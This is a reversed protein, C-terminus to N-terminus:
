RRAQNKRRSGYCGSELLQRYGQLFPKASKQLSFHEVVRARGNAGMRRALERNAHLQALASAFASADGVPTLIGTEGGRVVVAPGGCDTSVVPLGCAMAELLVMGLGEENSSLALCFARKYLSALEVRSIGIRVEVLQALNKARVFAADAATLGSHGVLVLRPMGPIERAIQSYSELLLRINKRPDALRGVCLIYDGLGAGGPQFMGTDVGPPAFVVRDTGALEQLHKHMWPNATFSLDSRLAGLRDYRAMLKTMFRRWITVLGTGQLASEREVGTLTFVQLAVPRDIAGVCCGWAPVGAVVQIIDFRRLIETLWPRPRLRQM